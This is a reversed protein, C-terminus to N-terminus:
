RCRDRRTPNVVLAVKPQHSHGHSELGSRLRVQSSRTTRNRILQSSDRSRIPEIGKRHACTSEDCAGLPHLRSGMVLGFRGGVEPAGM